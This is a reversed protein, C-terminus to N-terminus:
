ESFLSRNRDRAVDSWIRKPLDHRAFFVMRYISRRQNNHVLPMAHSNQFGLSRVLSCWYEFFAPALNQKNASRILPDDRWGPAADDFRARDPNFELDGNRELDMTSFNIALDVKLKALQQIMSFSLLELNYPDLFAMCLAGSPIARTMLPVTEIAAGSFVETPAGLARLRAGCADARETVLDGVLVKTFPAFEALTRWAVLAGGDRTFSEGEVQIRGPGSFPDIYVRQPWKKWANRTAFLYDHLLRHKETPVWIGVGKGRPGREVVLAPCSDPQTDDLLGPKNNKAGSQEPRTM